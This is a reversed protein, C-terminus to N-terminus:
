TLDLRALELRTLDSPHHCTVQTDWWIYSLGGAEDLGVIQSLNGYSYMESLVQWTAVPGLAPSPAVAPWTRLRERLRSM